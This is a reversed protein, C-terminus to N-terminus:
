DDYLGIAMIKDHIMLSVLIKFSHDDDFGCMLLYGAVFNLGQTYGIKPFYIAFKKLLLEFRAV